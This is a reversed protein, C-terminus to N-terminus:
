WTPKTQPIEVRLDADVRLEEILNVLQNLADALALETVLPKQRKVMPEEVASPRGNVSTSCAHVSAAFEACILSGVVM